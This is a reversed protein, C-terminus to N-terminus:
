NGDNLRRSRLAADGVKPSPRHLISPQIRTHVAAETTVHGPVNRHAVMTNDRHGADSSAMPLGFSYQPSLFPEVIPEAPQDQVGQHPGHLVRAVHYRRTWICVQLRLM